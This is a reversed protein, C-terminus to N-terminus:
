DEFPERGPVLEWPVETLQDTNILPSPGGPGAFDLYVQEIIKSASQGPYPSSAEVLKQIEGSRNPLGDGRSDRIAQELETFTKVRVSANAALEGTSTFQWHGEKEFFITPKGAIL